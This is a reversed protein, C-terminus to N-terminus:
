EAPPADEGLAEIYAILQDLQTDDLSVKPMIPNFGEVIQSAPDTIAQVLYDRDATVTDGGKLTVESGFLGAWSPGRVNVGEVASHCQTCGMDRAVDRGAAAEGTLGDTDDNGCAVLSLAVGAALAAVGFLRRLPRPRPNHSAPPLPAM